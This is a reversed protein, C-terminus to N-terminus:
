RRQREEGRKEEGPCSAAGRGGGLVATEDVYVGVGGEDVMAPWRSRTDRKNRMRQHRWAGNSPQPESDGALIMAGSEVGDMM